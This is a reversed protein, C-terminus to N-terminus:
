GGEKNIRSLRLRGPWRGMQSDLLIDETLMWNQPSTVLPVCCQASNLGNWRHIAVVQPMVPRSRRGDRRATTCSSPNGRPISSISKKVNVKLALSASTHHNASRLRNLMWNLAMKLRRPKRVNLGSKFTFDHGYVTIFSKYYSSISCYIRTLTM